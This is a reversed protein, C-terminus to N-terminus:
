SEVSSSGMLNVMDCQAVSTLIQDGVAWYQDPLQRSDLVSMPVAIDMM